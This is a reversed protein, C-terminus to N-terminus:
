KYKALYSSFTSEFDEGLDGREGFSEFNSSCVYSQRQASVSEKRTDYGTLPVSSDVFGFSCENLFNGNRDLGRLGGSVYM